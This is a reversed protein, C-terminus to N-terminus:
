RVIGAPPDLSGRLEYRGDAAVPMPQSGSLWVRRGVVLWNGGGGRLRHVMDVLGFGIVMFPVCLIDMAMVMPALLATLLLTMAICIAIGGGRSWSLVAPVVGILVGMVVAGVYFGVWGFDYWLSGPLSLFRGEFALAETPAAILGMKALLERVFIFSVTGPTGGFELASEFTGFSHTLYAGALTGLAATDALAEPLRELAFFADTPEGGLWPLTGEVYLAPLGGGAAARAGFVYISYGLGLVFLAGGILFVRGVRGPFAALGLSKRFGGIAVIAALQVLVISRGGILLSNAMVLVIGGFIVVRRAAKGIREWHLQAVAISCFFSFGIIYGVVSFVSSVGERSEGARRWLERAIAIGRSYDIGQLVVRDFFLCAFGVASLIMGIYVIRVVDSTELPRGAVYRRRQDAGRGFVAHVGYAVVASVLVWLLLSVATTFSELRGYRVPLILILACYGIWVAIYLNIHPASWRSRRGASVDGIVTSRSQV